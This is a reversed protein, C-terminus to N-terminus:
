EFNPANVKSNMLFASNDSRSYRRRSFPNLQSKKQRGIVNRRLFAEGCKLAQEHSIELDLSDRHDCVYQMQSTLMSLQGLLQIPTPNTLFMVSKPVASLQESVIKVATREEMSDGFSVVERYQTKTNEFPNQGEYFDEAKQSPTSQSSEDTSIMSGFSYDSDNTNRIREKEKEDEPSFRENVEHAFAAAKWCLPQGPYFHEYRTRASIITYNPLVPLLNPVYREASYNVWGDDSNTIIIVEGYKAAARLCKEAARGVDHMINQVHLPLDNFTEIEWQDVFSSPCITDDWDFIIVKSPKLQTIDM